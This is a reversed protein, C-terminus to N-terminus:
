RVLILMTVLIQVLHILQDQWLNIIKENAKANDIEFHAIINCTFVCVLMPDMAFGRIYFVPLMMM